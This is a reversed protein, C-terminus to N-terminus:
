FLLEDHKGIVQIPRLKWVQLYFEKVAKQMISM